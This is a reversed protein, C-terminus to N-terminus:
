KKSGDERFHRNYKQVIYRINSIFLKNKEIYENELEPDDSLIETMVKRFNYMWGIENIKYIKQGKEIFYYHNEDKSLKSNSRAFLMSFDYLKLKGDELIHVFREAATSDKVIAFSDIGVVFSSINDDPSLNIKKAKKTEKYVILGNGRFDILGTIKNGATDYYYGASQAFGSLLIISILIITLSFHKM